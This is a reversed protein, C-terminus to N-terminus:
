ENENFVIKANALQGAEIKSDMITWRDLWALDGYEWLFFWLMILPLEMIYEAKTILSMVFVVGLSLIGLLLLKNSKSRNIDLDIIKDGLKLGFYGKIVRQIIEKPLDCSGDTIIKIKKTM